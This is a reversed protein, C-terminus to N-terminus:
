LLFYVLLFLGILVSFIPWFVRFAALVLALYDGKEVEQSLEEETLEEQNEGRQSRLWRFSRELKNLFFM